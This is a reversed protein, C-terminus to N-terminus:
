KFVVVYKSRSVGRKQTKVNWLEYPFEWVKFYDLNLNYNSLIECGRVRVLNKEFDEVIKLHYNLSHSPFPQCM